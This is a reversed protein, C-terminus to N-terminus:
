AAAQRAPPLGPQRDTLIIDVTRLLLWDPLVQSDDMFKSLLTEGIELRAALARDGGVIDSAARLLKVTTVSVSPQSPQSTIFLAV